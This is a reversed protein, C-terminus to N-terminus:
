TYQIQILGSTSHRNLFRSQLTPLEKKKRFQHRSEMWRWSKGIGTRMWGVRWGVTVLERACRGVYSANVFNADCACCMPTDRWINRTDLPLLSGSRLFGPTASPAVSEKVYCRSNPFTVVNAVSASVAAVGLSSAVCRSNSVASVYCYTEPSYVHGSDHAHQLLKTEVTSVDINQRQRAKRFRHHPDRLGVRSSSFRRTVAAHAGAASGCRKPNLRRLAFAVRALLHVAAM